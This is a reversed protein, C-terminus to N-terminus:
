TGVPAAEESEVITWEARPLIPHSPSGWTDKFLNVELHVGDPDVYHLSYVPGFDRVAGDTSDPGEAKLRRRIELLAEMSRVTLGYHDTRGREFMERRDDGPAWPVHFAHLVVNAGIDIAAHRLGEEEMDFLVPADFVRQYFGVLRDVDDTVSAVHSFGDTLPV